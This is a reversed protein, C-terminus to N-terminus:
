VCICQSIHRMKNFPFFPKYFFVLILFTYGARTMVALVSFLIWTFGSITCVFASFRSPFIYIYIYIYLTLWNRWYLWHNLCQSAMTAAHFARHMYTEHGLHAVAEPHETDSASGKLINRSADGPVGSFPCTFLQSLWLSNSGATVNHETCM